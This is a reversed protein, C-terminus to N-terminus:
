EEVKHKNGFITGRKEEYIKNLLTLLNSQLYLKDNQIAFSKILNYVYDKCDKKENKLESIFTLLNKMNVSPNNKHMKTRTKEKDEEGKNGSSVEPYYRKQYILVGAM